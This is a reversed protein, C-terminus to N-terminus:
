GKKAMTRALSLFRRLAPNDNGPLWVACFALHSDDRPLQRFAVGPYCISVNSDSVLGLGFGMGVLKMVADQSIDHTELSMRGGLGGIRDWRPVCRHHRPDRDVGLVGGGGARGLHQVRDRWGALGHTGAGVAVDSWYHKKGEVRAVGVFSAVVFAPIGVALGQRNALSAAAAFANSTHGSPFSKRDSGDPRTKPFAEKLGTAVLTAAGISGAAQLAGQNDGQVLPLGISVAMLSYVGVDSATQWGKPSAQAPAAAHPFELAREM